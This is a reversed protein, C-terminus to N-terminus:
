RWRCLLIAAVQQATHGMPSSSSLYTHKWYIMTDVMFKRFYIKLKELTYGQGVLKKTLLRDRDIYLIVMRLALEPKDYLNRRSIYVNIKMM